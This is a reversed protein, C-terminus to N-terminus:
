VVILYLFTVKAHMESVGYSHAAEPAVDGDTTCSTTFQPVASHVTLLEPSDSFSIKFSKSVTMQHFFQKQKKKNTFFLQRSGQEQNQNQVKQLKKRNNRFDTAAFTAFFYINLKSM